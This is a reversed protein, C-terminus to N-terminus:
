RRQSKRASGRSGTSAQLRVQSCGPRAICSALPKLHSAPTSRLTVPSSVGKNGADDLQEAVATYTGNPLSASNSTWTDGEPKIGAVTDVPSGSVAEGAYINLTILPEDGTAHGAVGSFTPKSVELEDGNAPTTLTVKPPITFTVAASTGVNGVEDTQSAQATYTGDALHPATYTWTGTSRSVSKSAVITGGVSAGEYITVTVTSADGVAVGAAGTLTPESTQSPSPVPNISVAPPTTDITFTVAGSKGVNGAEDSQSAQATYTGDSLHSAAYSWSGGARSVNGSQAVTGGVTTGDYVIVTVTTEDGFASGAGGSLAPEADNSPSSVAHISVTPPTTDVRFTVAASTGVNGADDRQTAQATYTGDSLTPSDFSWTGVSVQANGSAVTNGSLTAGEHIAIAVSSEDGAALGLAGSLTPTSDRTPSVVANMTVAPATTDITFTVPVSTGTESEPNTQEAVVTYQGQALPADASIEWTAQEFGVEVPALLLDTQVPLGSVTPGAYIAVTVADLTDDSTGSFVPAEANTSTGILPQDIAITPAAAMASAAFGVALMALVVLAIAAMRAVIRGTM